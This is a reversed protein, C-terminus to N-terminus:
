IRLRYYHLATNYDSQSPGRTWSDLGRTWDQNEMIGNSFAVM